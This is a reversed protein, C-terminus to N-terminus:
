SVLLPFVPEQSPATQMQLCDCVGYELTVPPELQTALPRSGTVVKESHVCAADRKPRPATWFSVPVAPEETFGICQKRAAASPFTWKSGPVWVPLQLSAFAHRQLDGHCYLYVDATGLQEAFRM